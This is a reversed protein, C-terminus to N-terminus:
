LMDGKLRVSEISYADADRRMNRIHEVLEDQMLRGSQDGAASRIDALLRLLSANQAKLDAIEKEPDEMGTCANICTIIRKAANKPYVIDSSSLISIYESDFFEVWKKGHIDEAVNCVWPEGYKSM